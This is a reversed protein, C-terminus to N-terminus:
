RPCSIQLVVNIYIKSVWIVVTAWRNKALTISPGLIKKFRLGKPLPYITLILSTKKKFTEILSKTMKKFM